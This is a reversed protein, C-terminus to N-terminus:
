RGDQINQYIRRATELFADEVNDGSFFLLNYISLSEAFNHGSIDFVQLLLPLFLYGILLELIRSLERKFAKFNFVWEVWSKEELEFFGVDEGFM